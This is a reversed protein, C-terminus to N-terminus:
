CEEGHFLENEYNFVQSCWDLSEILGKVLPLSKHMCSELHIKCATLVKDIHDLDASAWDSIGYNIMYAVTLGEELEEFYKKRETQTRKENKLNESVLVQHLARKDDKVSSVWTILLSAFQAYSVTDLIPFPSFTNKSEYSIKHQYNHHTVAKPKSKFKDLIVERRKDAWEEEEFVLDCDLYMLKKSKNNLTITDVSGDDNKVSLTTAEETIETAIRACWTGQYNVIFSLYYVFSGANDHLEEQDEGSFFTSMHHHTHILGRKLSHSKEETGDDLGPFQDIMDIVDMPDPEFSTFSHTGIDQLWMAEAKLIFKDPQNLSGEIERFILTGSWETDKPLKSHNQLVQLQIEKSVILKPKNSLALEPLKVKKPEVTVSKGM